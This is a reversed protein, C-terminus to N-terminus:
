DDTGRGIIEVDCEKVQSIKVQVGCCPCPDSKLRLGGHSRSVTFVTGKPIVCWGNSLDSLSRVKLGIWDRKNKLTKRDIQDM